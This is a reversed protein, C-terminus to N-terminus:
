RNGGPTTLTGPAAFWVDVVLLRGRWSLPLHQVRVAGALPPVASGVQPLGLTGHNPLLSKLNGGVVNAIEGFADELDERSVEDDDALGLLARALDEATGHGTVLVARGSWEGLLDVWAVVADSLEPLEGDWPLLLGLDGDVMAAFVEQAIAHVQDHDVTTATM